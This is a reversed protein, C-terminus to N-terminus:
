SKSFKIGQTKIAYMGEGLEEWFRGVERDVWDQTRNFFLLCVFFCVFLVMSVLKHQRHIKPYINTSTGGEVPSHDM